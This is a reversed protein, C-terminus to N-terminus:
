RLRQGNALVQGQGTIEIRSTLTDPGAGPRAFLGLMMRAGMAQDAPLLGMAVLTDLLANGGTLTLDLAGEPRPMGPFTALDTNDFSFAGAGTLAAGAISLNLANVSLTNIEGPPTGMAAMMANEDMIDQTLRAKGTFDLQLTAPDRPLQGAPDIMGWIADSVTIDGLTLGLAFDTPEDTPSIPLLMNFGVQGMGLTVPLPIETGAYNLAIGRAEGAYAIRTDDIQVNLRGGASSTTTEFSQGQGTIAIDASGSDYTYGGDFAFGARMAASMDTMDTEAPIAMTGNFGVGRLGGAISIRGGADEPNAMDLVYDMAALTMTQAIARLDTGTRTSEGAMGTMRAQAQDIAVPEAGVVLSTLAFAMEAASYTYTLADPDGAVIMEFGSHTYDITGSVEEEIGDSNPAITTFAIPLNDPVTVRVRGDGTETFSLGDLAISTTGDTEPMQMTLSLSSLTISNGSAQESATVTYGFSEMYSKFDDWVQAATVDASVASGTIFIAIATSGLHRSWFSM